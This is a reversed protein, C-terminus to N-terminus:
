EFEGHRLKRIQLTLTIINIMPSNHPNFLIVCIFFKSVVLYMTLM